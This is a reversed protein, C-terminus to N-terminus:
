VEIRYRCSIGGDHVTSNGSLLTSGAISPCQTSSTIGRITVALLQYTGDSYYLIGRFWDTSTGIATMDPSPLSNSLYPKIEANLTPNEVDSSSLRCQTTGGGGNGTPYGTGLCARSVSPYQGKDAHYLKIAKAYAGAASVTKANAARTQIGNFAVIAIAALIGIVVIVILLEVITFGRQSNIKNM